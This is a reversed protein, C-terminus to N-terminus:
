VENPPTAREAATLFQVAWERDTIHVPDDRRKGCATNMLGDPAYGHQCRSRPSPGGDFRHRTVM